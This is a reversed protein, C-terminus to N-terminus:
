NAGFDHFRYMSGSVVRNSYHSVKSRVWQLIHEESAEREIYM